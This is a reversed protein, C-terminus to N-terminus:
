IEMVLKKVPKVKDVFVINDSKRIIRFQSSEDFLYGYLADIEPIFDYFLIECDQDEFGRSKNDLSKLDVDSNSISEENELTIKYCCNNCYLCDMVGCIDVQPCSKNVGTRREILARGVIGGNSKLKEGSINHSM